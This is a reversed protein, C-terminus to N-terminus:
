RPAYHGHIFVTHRRNWHGPIWVWYVGNVWYGSGHTYFPRDGVEIFFRLANASPALIGGVCLITLLILGFKKM